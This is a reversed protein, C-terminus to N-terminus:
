TQQRDLWRLVTAFQNEPDYPKILIDNMGAELSHMKDEVFASATIAIIPTHQHEPLRRIQRTAELGDTNPMQLDM